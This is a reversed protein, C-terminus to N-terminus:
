LDITELNGWGTEKRFQIRDPIVQIIVCWETEQHQWADSEFNFSDIAGIKAEGYLEWGRTVLSVASDHELNFLHDSTKPVLRYLNLGVARCPFESVLLGAPGNSALVVCNVTKLAEIARKQAYNLM